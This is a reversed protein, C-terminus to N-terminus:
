IKNEILITIPHSVQLKFFKDRASGSLGSTILWHALEWHGFNDFVSEFTREKEQKSWTEFVTEAKEFKFGALEDPFHTVHVRPSGAEDQELEEDQRPAEPDSVYEASPLDHLQDLLNELNTQRLNEAALAEEPIDDTIPLQEPLPHTTGARHTNLQAELARKKELGACLISQTLHRSLGSRTYTKDCFQCFVSEPICPVTNMLLTTTLIIYELHELSLNIHVLLHDLDPWTLVHVSSLWPAFFENGAKKKWVM